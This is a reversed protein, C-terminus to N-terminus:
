GGVAKRLAVGVAVAQALVVGAAGCVGGIMFFGIYTWTM